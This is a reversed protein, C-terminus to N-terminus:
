EHVLVDYLVIRPDADVDIRTVPGAGLNTVYMTVDVDSYGVVSWSPTTVFAATLALPSILAIETPDSPKGPNFAM